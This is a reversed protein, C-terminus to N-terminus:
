DIFLWVQRNEIMTQLELKVSLHNDKVEFIYKINRNKNVKLSILILDIGM